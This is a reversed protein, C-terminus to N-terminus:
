KWDQLFRPEALITLHENVLFRQPWIGEGNLEGDRIGILAKQLDEIDEPGLRPAGPPTARHAGYLSTTKALKKLSDATQLYDQMSSGPVFAYLNGPYLYDGTLIMNHRQDLLSISEKSHGPTHIITVERGGLDIAEGPAWWHDIQWTPVPFGEVPGLHEMETFRLRDGEARDRLYPLDVVARQTFHTGNGVHDYHFHSPLFVIPLDTLSQAVPLIDRIGPGADFLLAQETGVILYNFNQQYYRPEGIAWTGEAIQEVTYYDDFWQTGQGEDLADELPPSHGGELKMVQYMILDRNYVALALALALSILAIAVKQIIGTLM